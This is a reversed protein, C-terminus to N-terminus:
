HLSKYRGYANVFGSTFKETESAIQRGLEQTSIWEVASVEVPDYKIPGDYVCTYLQEFRHLTKEGMREESYYKRLLTLQPNDIGLEESTERIGATDYDEGYDVHGGVSQDWLGGQNVSMSRLQILMRGDSKFVFVRVIRHILGKTYAEAVTDCSGIPVDNKDVIAIPRYAM